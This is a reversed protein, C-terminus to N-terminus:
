HIEAFAKELDGLIDTVNELGVSICTMGADIGAAALQEDNLQRHKESAPHLVSTRIDAVHVENSALELSDMFKVANPRGGKIVFSIIGSCGKLYKQALAHNADGKLGPYIVREVKDLDELYTPNGFRSYILSKMPDDFVTVVDDTSDYVCTTSQVIPVVRPEANKPHYGAHLCKTEDKM